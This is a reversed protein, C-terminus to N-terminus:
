ISELHTVTRQLAPQSGHKAEEALEVMEWAAQFIAEDGQERWFDADFQRDPFAGEVLRTTWKRDPREQATECVHGRFERSGTTAGCSPCRRLIRPRGPGAGFRTRKLSNRRAWESKLVIDPISKPDIDGTWKRM